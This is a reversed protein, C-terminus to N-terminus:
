EAIRIMAGDALNQRGGTVVREGPKMGALVTARSGVFSGVRITRVRAVTKGSEDEVVFVSAANPDSPARLLASAPVAPMQVPGQSGPVSVKGMMGAKLQLAKNPIAVEIRYLRTVPDAAAGIERVRGEFTRDPIADVQVPLTAGLKLRLVVTDPVGFSVRVTSLDGLRFVPIGRGALTGVEVRKDLVVASMPVVLATDVFTIASLQEQARASALQNREAAINKKAAEVQARTADLQAIAADYDTKTLAKEQYLAVARESDLSAKKHLAEVQALQWEAARVGEEARFSQARYAELSARYDSQRVRALVAGKPVSDGAQVDRGGVRFLSDVYGDVKFALDVMTDPEVTASYHSTSDVSIQEVVATQVPTVAAASVEHKSRDCGGIILVGGAFIATLLSKRTTM